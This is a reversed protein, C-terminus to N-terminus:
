EIKERTLSVTDRRSFHSWFALEPAHHGQEQHFIQQGKALLGTIRLWMIKIGSGSGAGPFAFDHPELLLFSAVDQPELRPVPEV